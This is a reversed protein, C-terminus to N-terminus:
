AKRIVVRRRPEEGESVTMVGDIESVTDHVLKRDASSMPEFAQDRGTEVARGAAQRAFDSLLVARRARYGAVDVRVRGASGAGHRQIVTRVLEEVADLTASRPGILIGLGEGDVDIFLDAEDVRTRVTATLGFERVLSEVFDRALDVHGEETGIVSAVEAEQARPTGEVQRTRRRRRDPGAAGGSPGRDESAEERSPERTPEKSPRPFSTRRGGGSSSPASSQAQAGSNGRRPESEAGEPRGPRGERRRRRGAKERSVPKVRARVRASGGGFGLFSRRPEELVELEAEDEDVGLMDLAADVAETVTKRTIEIWEM